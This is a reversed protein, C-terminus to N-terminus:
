RKRKFSLPVAMVLGALFGGIHAYWAISGGVVGAYMIQLFFWIGLFIVAPVRIIRIFFLIWFLTIIRAQPYLLIYAGLVGAVAGSAGIVPITSSPNMLAQTFGAAVASVFYFIIFPFHGFADEINNGFIWLFLMNGIIHLLGGHLFTSTLLTLINPLGAHGTELSYHILNDPILAFSQFFGERLHPPLFIEYAFVIGNMIILAITVFPFTRTPNEDRLPIM